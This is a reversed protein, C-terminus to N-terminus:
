KEALQCGYESINVEKKDIFNVVMATLTKDGENFHMTFTIKDNLRLTHAPASIRVGGRSIDIIKVPTPTLLDYRENQRILSTIKAVFNCKYRAERRNEKEKGRFLILVRDYNHQVVRGKYEVPTPDTLILLSCVNNIDLSKPLGGYLSLRYEKRDFRSAVYKNIYDGNQDYLLVDCGTYDKVLGSM